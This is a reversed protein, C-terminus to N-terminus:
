WPPKGGGDGLVSSSAVAPCRLAAVGEKSTIVLNIAATVYKGNDTLNLLNYAGADNAIGDVSAQASGGTYIPDNAQRTPNLGKAVYQSVNKYIHDTFTESFFLQTTQDYVAASGSFSRVRVHVHPVRSPYWGPYISIFKVLGQANTIQYGRLYDEATLDAAGFNSEGSYYGNADCHWIDVYAANVPSISGNRQLKSLTITLVLPYGQAIAGTVTSHRIDARYLNNPLADLCFPGETLIPTLAYASLASPSFAGLASVAALSAAGKGTKILMDRCSLLEFQNEQRM